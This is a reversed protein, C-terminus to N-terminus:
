APSWYTDRQTILGWVGQGRQRGIKWDIGGDGRTIGSLHRGIQKDFLPQWPMLPFGLGVELM